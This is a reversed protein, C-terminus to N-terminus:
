LGLCRLHIDVLLVIFSCRWLIMHGQLVKARGYSLIAYAVIQIAGIFAYMVALGVVHILHLTLSPASLACALVVSVLRGNVFKVIVIM